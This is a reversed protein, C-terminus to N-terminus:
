RMNLAAWTSHLGLEGLWFFSAKVIHLGILVIGEGTKELL